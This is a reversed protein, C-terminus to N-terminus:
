SDPYPYPPSTNTIKMGFTGLDLALLLGLDSDRRKWFELESSWQLSPPCEKPKSGVGIGIESKSLPKRSTLRLIRLYLCEFFSIASPSNLGDDNATITLSFSGTVAM